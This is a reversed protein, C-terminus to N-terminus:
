AAKKNDCFSWTFGIENLRKKRESSLKERQIRQTAIWTGLQLKDKYTCPVDCHGNKNKFEILTLIKKGM